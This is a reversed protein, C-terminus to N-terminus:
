PVQTLNQYIIDEDMPYLKVLRKYDERPLRFLRTDSSTARASTMYRIDFCFELQGLATGAHAVEKVEYEGTASDM